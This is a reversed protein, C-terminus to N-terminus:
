INQNNIGQWDYWKCINEGIRYTTKENQKYNAKSHLLMYTDNPGMQKNKKIEMERPSPDFFIKSHNIDFLTIGINEM